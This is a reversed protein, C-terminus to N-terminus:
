EGGEKKAILEELVRKEGQCGDCATCASITALLSKLSNLSLSQYDYEYIDIRDECSMNEVNM